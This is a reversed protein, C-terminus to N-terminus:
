SWQKMVEALDKKAAPEAKKTERKKPQEPAAEEQKPEEAQALLKPQKTVGDLKAPTFKIARLAAESKGAKVAADYQERNVHGVPRFFIKPTASDTDFSLETIMAELSRGNAIILKVYQPFSLYDGESESFISRSPLTLQYVDNTPDGVIMVALRQQYGCARSKGDRSSGKINQPCTACMDSQPNEISADPQKGDSSFCDPPTINSPNYAQEYFIRSVRPAANVVIVNLSRGDSKRVEEGGVIMRFVGGRISLRKSTNGVLSRTLESPQADKLFDPLEHSFVSLSTSQSM